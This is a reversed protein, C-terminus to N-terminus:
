QWYEEFRESIDDSKIETNQILIHNFSYDMNEVIERAEDETVDCELELRVTVEIIGNKVM